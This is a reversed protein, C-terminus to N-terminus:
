QQASGSLSGFPLDIWLHSFNYKIPWQRAYGVTYGILVHRNPIFKFFDSKKRRATPSHRPRRSLSPVAPHAGAFLFLLPKALTLFRRSILLFDTDSQISPLMYNGKNFKLETRELGSAAITVSCTARFRQM